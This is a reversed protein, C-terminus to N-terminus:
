ISVVMKNAPNGEKSGTPKKAKAWNDSMIRDTDTMITPASVIGSAMQTYEYGLRLNAVQEPTLRRYFNEVFEQKQHHTGHDYLWRTFKSM